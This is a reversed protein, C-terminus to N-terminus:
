FCMGTVWHGEHEMYLAALGGIGAVVGLIGLFGWYRSPPIRWERYVIRKM